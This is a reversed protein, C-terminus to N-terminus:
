SATTAAAPQKMRLTVSYRVDDTPGSVSHLPRASPWQAYGPARLLLLDGCNLQYRNLPPGQRDRFLRFEAPGGLSFISILKIFGRSDRHPSIGGSGPSYRQVHIDTVVYDALWPEDLSLAKARLMGEHAEALARLPALAPNEPGAGLKVALLDFDQLVKGVRQSARQLDLRELARRLDRRADSTLAEAIRCVGYQGVEGLAEALERQRLSLMSAM